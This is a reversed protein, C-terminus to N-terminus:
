LLKYDPKPSDTPDNFILNLARLLKDFTELGAEPDSSPGHLSFKPIFFYADLFDKLDQLDKKSLSLSIDDNINNIMM